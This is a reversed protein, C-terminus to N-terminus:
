KQSVVIVVVGGEGGRRGEDLIEGAHNRSRLVDHPLPVLELLEEAEGALVRFEELLADGAEVPGALLAEHGVADFDAEGFEFGRSEGDALADTLAAALETRAGGEDVEELSHGDGSDSFPEEDVVADDEDDCM